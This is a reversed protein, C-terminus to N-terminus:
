WTGGPYQHYVSRFEALLPGLAETHLGSRGGTARWSPTPVDLGAEALVAAVDTEWPERLRAPSVCTGNAALRQTLEDPEFLEAAYPWVLAVGAQMRRRSEATGRGLLVAWRAAHLRHYEVEKAARGAFGALETDHSRTLDTYLLGAYVAYVLQRAITMGFDGNPLELLLANRFTRESRRYALDDDSRGSGDLRGSRALLVRAHGLLDLAINSLALDEEITPAHTVWACLRQCLVLADDGLRLAYEAGDPDLDVPM